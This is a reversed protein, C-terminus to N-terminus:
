MTRAVELGRACRWWAPQPGSVISHPPPVEERKKAAYTNQPRNARMCLPLHHRDDAGERGQCRGCIRGVKNAARDMLSHALHAKDLALIHRPFVAPGLAM